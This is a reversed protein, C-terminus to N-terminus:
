ERLKLIILKHTHLNKKYSHNDLNEKKRGTSESEKVERENTSAHTPNMAIARRYDSRIIVAVIRSVTVIVTDTRNM